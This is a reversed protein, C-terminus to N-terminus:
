KLPRLDVAVNEHYVRLQIGKEIRDTEMGHINDKKPDGDMRDMNQAQGSKEGSMEGKELDDWKELQKDRDGLM